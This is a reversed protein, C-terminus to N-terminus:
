RNFKDKAQIYEWGSSFGLNSAIRLMPHLNSCFNYKFKQFNLDTNLNIKLDMEYEELFDSYHEVKTRSVSENIFYYKFIEYHSLILPKIYKYHALSDSKFSNVKTSVPVLNWIRDHGVFSWPLFHDLAFEDSSISESSYICRFGKESIFKSWFIKQKKLSARANPEELKTAISPVNPNRRQLYELWHWKVWSEIVLYNEKIYLLWEPHVELGNLMFRYLPKKTFFERDSVERLFTEKLYDFSKRSNNVENRKLIEYDRWEQEFFVSIIRTPVYKLLSKRALERDNIFKLMQDQKGFNLKCVCIPYEAKKCIDEIILDFPIVAEKFDAKLLSDLLAQFFLYKYSNTTDSFLRAFISINLRPAAPLSYM